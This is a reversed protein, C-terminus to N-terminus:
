RKFLWEERSYREDRLRTALKLEKETLEGETLTINLAKSFGKKLAEIVEERSVKRGLERSVTTVREYISKVGHSALKAKPARLVRALIELDTNYLLTGHQLLAGERRVQASGSIKKKGVVVDNIPALEAKLGLERLAYVIGRCIVAFSEAVDRPFLKESAVVAYTVEGNADHYVSSGGTIRRM